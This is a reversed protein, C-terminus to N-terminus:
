SNTGDNKQILEYGLCILIRKLLPLLTSAFSFDKPWVRVTDSSSIPWGLSLFNSEPFPLPHHLRIIVLEGDHFYQLRRPAPSAADAIGQLRRADNREIECIGLIEPSKASGFKTRALGYASTRHGFITVNKRFLLWDTNGNCRDIPLWRENSWFAANEMEFPQSLSKASSKLFTDRWKRIDRYQLGLWDDFRQMPIGDAQSRNKESLELIRARGAIQIDQRLRPSLLHCPGGGVLLACAGDVEVQRLPGLLWRGDFRVLDSLRALHDLEELTTKSDESNFLGVSSLRAKVQHAIRLTPVPYRDENLLNQAELAVIARLHEAVFGIRFATLTSSFRFDAEVVERLEKSSIAALKL